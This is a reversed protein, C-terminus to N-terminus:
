PSPMPLIEETPQPSPEPAPPYEWFAFGSVPKQRVDIRYLRVRAPWRAPFAVSGLPDAAGGPQITYGEKIVFLDTPTMYFPAYDPMRVAAKGDPGTVTEVSYYSMAFNPSTRSYVRAGAVPRGSEDTVQVAPGCGALVGAAALGCIVSRVMTMGAVMAM